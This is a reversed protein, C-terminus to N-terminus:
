SFENEVGSDLITSTITCQISEGAAELYHIAERLHIESTHPNGGMYRLVFLQNEVGQRLTNCDDKIQFGHLYIVGDTIIKQYLLTNLEFIYKSDSQWNKCKGVYVFMVSNIDISSKIILFNSNETILRKFSNALDIRDDIIKGLKKKGLHKVLLYLKISAWSKSGINPTLQGLSWADRMILSSSTWFGESKEPDKFIFYSLIYPLNFVKHPDLSISDAKEVGLIRNRYKESFLLQGGHCGDIHVWCKPDILRIIEIAKEIHDITLTRSDGANLVVCVLDEGSNKSKVLVQQLASLDMAYNKTPIKVVNEIGLGILNIAGAVSYHTIDSSIFIKPKANKPIGYRYADPYLNNRAMILGYMNSCTGGTTAVGGLERVSTINADNRYGILQRLWKITCVEIFTASRSCFESNLLNQQCTAEVIGGLLGAISNGSDPFGMFMPSSFNASEVLLERVITTIDELSAGLTPLESVYKKLFYSADYNKGVKKRTKFTLIEAIIKQMHSSVEDANDTNLFYQNLDDM